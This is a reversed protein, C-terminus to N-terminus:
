SFTCYGFHQPAQSVVQPFLTLSLMSVAKLFSEVSSNFIKWQIGRLRAIFKSAPLLSTFTLTHQLHDGCQQQVDDGFVLRWEAQVPPGLDVLPHTNPMLDEWLATTFTTQQQCVICCSPPHQTKGCHLLLPQRSNVFLVVFPHTNPTLDEWLATTFATQLQCVICCSPPHQANPRGM